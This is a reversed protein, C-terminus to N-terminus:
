GLKKERFYENNNCKSGNKKFPFVTERTVNTGWFVQCKPSCSKCDHIVALDSLAIDIYETIQRKLFKSM